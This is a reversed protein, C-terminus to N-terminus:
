FRLKRLTISFYLGAPKIIPEFDNWVAPETETITNGEEDNEGTDKQWQWPGHVNTFVYSATLVIDRKQGIQIALNGDLSPDSFFSIVNHGDDDGRRAFLAPLELSVSGKTGFGSFLTYDLNTGFGLYGNMKNRSDIVSGLYGNISGSFEAFPNIWFSGAVEYRRDKSYTFNLDTITPSGKLEYAKHGPKVKRWKRVVKARSGDPGVDTIRILGRSKGPLTVTKGKYTKIKDKSSIEFLAGKKLGLNEGSFISVYSGDVEIIESTIMYLDKLKMRIQISLQNLVRSLSADRNGGTFSANLSFSHESVGSAVNVLKVNGKFETHINNELELRIKLTDVQRANEITETVVTKVLWKFLTGDDDDDDNDDEKKKEKPVGKQGFHVIELILAKEAAALEGLQVVQDNSVLGSLQFKQEELIEAVLNRDIVEFRGLATAQESIISLVKDALEKENDQAAPLIMLAKKELTLNEDLEQSIVPSVLIVCLYIHHKLKM